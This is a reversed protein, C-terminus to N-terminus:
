RAIRADTGHLARRMRYAARFGIRVLYFPGACSAHGARLAEEATPAVFIQQSAVDIAAFQGRSQAELENQRRAYIKQGADVISRKNPTVMEPDDERRAGRDDIDM